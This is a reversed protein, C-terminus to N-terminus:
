AASDPCLHSQSLIDLNLWGRVSVYEDLDHLEHAVPFRRHIYGYEVLVDDHPAGSAGRLPLVRGFRCDGLFESIHSLM